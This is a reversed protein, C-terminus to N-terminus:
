RWSFIRGGLGVLRRGHDLEMRMSTGRGDEEETLKWNKTVCDVDEEAEAHLWGDM